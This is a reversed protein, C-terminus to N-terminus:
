SLAERSLDVFRKFTWPEQAAGRCSYWCRRCETPEFLDRRWQSWHHTIPQDSCRKIMGDPTVQVWNLGATCGPVGRQQFFEPIRDLYFEGTTLTNQRRTFAKVAALIERLAPLDEGTLMHDENHIRWGNYTSLSVKVGLAAARELIAPIERYNGRKLVVNFCLDLGADKLPPVVALIHKALGPLGRDRDHREDLYDLSISLEDLGAQWLERGRKPTLLLGNTVLGIVLFGFNQRLSAIIEALDPRLLPEGGTLGISLPKLKKVVPVYDTLEPPHDEQWYDCFDCRANCRKTVELNINFLGGRALYEAFRFGGVAM